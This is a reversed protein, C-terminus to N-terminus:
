VDRRSSTAGARVRLLRKLTTPAVNFKSALQRESVGHQYEYVLQDIQGDSLPHRRPTAQTQAPMLYTEGIVIRRITEQGVGFQIALKPCSLGGRYLERIQQAQEFALASSQGVEGRRGILFRGREIADMVNERPTGLYLHGPNVCARFDCSHLVMKGDAIEGNHVVWSVRHADYVKGGIKLCGYGTDRTAATWIWCGNDGSQKVVKSFFRSKLADTVAFPLM